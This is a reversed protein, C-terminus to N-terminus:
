NGESNVREVARVSLNFIESDDFQSWKWQEVWADMKGIDEITKCKQYYNAIKGLSPKEDSSEEKEDSQHQAPIVVQETYQQTPMVLQEQPPKIIGAEIKSEQDHKLQETEKEAQKAAEIEAKTRRKRKLKKQDSELIESDHTIEPQGQVSNAKIKLIEENINPYESQPTIDKIHDGVDHIEESTQMGLLLEPVYLRGFFAAARYRLMLNPMTQWKSGKRGYWGEVKAMGVSVAPGEQVVGNKDPAWAICYRADGQGEIKFQLPEAFKGSSNIQAIIFSSSFSPRGYVIHLSQIVMFPSMNLRAALELGILCNSPSGHFEEPVLTSEALAKAQRLALEFGSESQFLTLENM